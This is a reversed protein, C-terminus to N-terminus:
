MGVCRVEHGQFAGQVLRWELRDRWGGFGLGNEAVLGWQQIKQGANPHQM